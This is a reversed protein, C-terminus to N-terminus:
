PNGWIMFIQEVCVPPFDGYTLCVEYRVLDGNNGEIPDLTFSTIGKHNTPPLTLAVVRGDPYTVTFDLEMDPQPTQQLEVMVFVTQPTQSDVITHNEWAILTFPTKNRGKTTPDKLDQGEVSSSSKPVIYESKYQQYYREGLPVPRVPQVANNSNYDLCYHEFCQRLEKTEANLVILETIPQGSIQYGGHEQVFDDFFYLVNHGVGKEIEFFIFNSNDLPAFLNTDKLGLLVPTDCIEIVGNNENLVLFDLILDTTGDYRQTPGEVVEGALSMDINRLMMQSYFYSDTLPPSVIAGTNFTQLNCGECHLRGYHLLSATTELYDLYIYFGMTEFHQEVRNQSINIFPDTLPAGVLDPGLSLYTSTFAPHIFHTGVYLGGETPGDWNSIPLQGLKLDVGILEFTVAQTEANFIMLVTEFYQGRKGQINTFASSIAYGFVEAGGHKQYFSQFVPDVPYTGAPRSVEEAIM